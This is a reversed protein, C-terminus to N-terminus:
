KKRTAKKAKRVKPRSAKAPKRKPVPARSHEPM